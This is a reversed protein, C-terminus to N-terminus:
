LDYLYGGCSKFPGHMYSILGTYRIKITLFFDWFGMVDRLRLFGWTARNKHSEHM